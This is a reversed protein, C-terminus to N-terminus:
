STMSSVGRVSSVEEDGDKLGLVTGTFVSASCARLGTGTMHQKGHLVM